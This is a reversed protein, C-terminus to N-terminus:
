QKKYNVMNILLKKAVESPGDRKTLNKVIDLSSFIICGKGYPAIGVTTGLYFGWSRYAGAVLEEGDVKFGYRNDGDHVLDQYPWDMATAQPLDKFLPHRKVFHIGGVWNKGVNFYGNYKIGTAKAIDEMWTETQGIVVITTGDNKARDLLTAPAIQIDGPRSWKLQVSGDQGHQYYGIKIHVPKGAEMQVPRTEVFHDRNWYKDLLQQGNVWLRIGASAEIGLMHLGSQNSVIDGEWTASFTHNAPLCSAPQAGAAFSRNVNTADEEGVKNHLDNDSYWTLKLNKFAEDPMPVPEDLSSRNVIIWDLKGSKANFLPIDKGTTQKYFRSVDDDKSGYLAGKGQELETATWNVGLVEDSGNTVIKSAPSVLEGELTYMGPKGDIDVPINEKLLQGYREGGEVNVDSESVLKRTGDPAKLYLRLKHPGNVNKENVIYCDVTAKGPMRVVENRTCVAIYLPSNYHALIQPDCKPNRYIDVIGSHNDYPMSEWGNIVYIDGIDQMRMGQIRKGQHELQVRGMLCCLSDLSTFGGEALKKDKFFKTFANYQNEWFLGDWGTKGSKQIADHILQLRPPTSIAGEEGRMFIETKNTTYMYNRRPGKYYREEWTAPGDARHNDFWGRRYLTDNYPRMHAKSDEDAKEKSAWGSTFTIVRSPDVKHANELDKMRSAVLGQDKSGSGGYENIMNYIILAPHSRDRRIMRRIKEVAMAHAFSDRGASQYGGPEEFYLLGLSDAVNLVNPRGICRHFNLMNLGLTQATKVQKVAMSDSAPLGTVPFYGWSIASKIMMRKGNLRPVANKGIGDITFWRFGFTRQDNDTVTKKEILEVKCTYLSPHTLNWVKANPCSIRFTQTSIGSPLSINKFVQQFAVRGQKDSVTVRVNRKAAKGSENNLEVVANADTITPLNQMYVDSINVDPTCILNVHGIIGGFARGPLIQTKGWYYPTFDQWHFNGGANTVRIALQQNKGPQVYKTIDADFPTEGIVDYAVLHGDIFVETRQRVSEFKLVVRKGAQSAPVNITRWWWSVGAKDMPQPQKSTTTYEEVTGPVTVAMGASPSLVQWGGTPPNVPLKSLDKAQDPLYLHDNQWKAAEDRWLRWSSGDLLNVYRGGSTPSAFSMVSPILM